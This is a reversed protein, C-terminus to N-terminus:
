AARKRTGCRVLASDAGRLRLRGDCHSNAHQRRTSRSSSTRRRVWRRSVAPSPTRLSSSCRPSSGAGAGPANGIWCRTGGGRQGRTELPDRARRGEVECGAASRGPPQCSRRLRALARTARRGGPCAAYNRPLRRPAPGGHRQAWLELWADDDLFFKWDSVVAQRILLFPVPSTFPRFTSNYIAGAENGEYSGGMVFGDDVYSPVALDKLVNDFLGGAQDPSLDTFVVVIAKHIADDGDTPRAGLLLRQYGGVLDVVDPVIRGGVHEPALWLTRRLLSEPVFPCVPGARGLDEHPRVIFSKIWAAVTQLADLDSQPLESTRSVDDLDEVLFLNTTQPRTQAPM